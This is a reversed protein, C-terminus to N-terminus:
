KCANPTRCRCESEAHCAHDKCRAAESAVSPYAGFHQEYIRQTEAFADTLAQRDTADHIGFYPYHHLYYGFVAACDAHYSKTDLIHAHWFEDILKSPVLDVGPYLRKLTLFRRYEQEALDGEERSLKPPEGAETLKWKLKTFDLAAVAPDIGTANAELMMSM